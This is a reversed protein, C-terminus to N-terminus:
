RDKVRTYIRRIKVNPIETGDGSVKTIITLSSGGKGLAYTETIKTSGRSPAVSVLKKGKWRATGLLGTTGGKPAESGQIRIIGPTGDDETIQLESEDGTIVLQEAARALRALQPSEQQGGRGQPRDSGGQSNGGRSTTGSRGGGPGGGGPGGGGPGGGGPGGGGPGGGGPGGGGPGGSGSGGATADSASNERAQQIKQQANDSRDLDIVWTGHLTPAPRDGPKGASWGPSPSGLLSATVVGSILLRTFRIRGHSMRGGRM